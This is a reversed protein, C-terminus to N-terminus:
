AISEDAPMEQKMITTIEGALRNREVINTTLIGFKRLAEKNKAFSLGFMAANALVLKHAAVKTGRGKVRGM